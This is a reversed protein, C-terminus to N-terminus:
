RKTCRSLQEFWQQLPASQREKRNVPGCVDCQDEANAASRQVVPYGAATQAGTVKRAAAAEQRLIQFIKEGPADLGATWRLRINLAALKIGCFLCIYAADGQM